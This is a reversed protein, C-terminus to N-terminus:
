GEFGDLYYVYGITIGLVRHNIQEYGDPQQTDPIDNLDYISLSYRTEIFLANEFGIKIAMGLGAHISLDVRNLSETDFDIKRNEIGNATQIKDKGAILYNFGPGLHIYTKLYETGFINTKGLINFELYDLSRQAILNNGDKYRIGKQSYGLEPQMSFLGGGAFNYFIGTHFGLRKVAAESQGLSDMAFADNYDALNLGTRLGYNSQALLSVALLQFSFIYVYRM